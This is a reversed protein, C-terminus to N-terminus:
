IVDLKHLRPVADYVDDHTALKLREFGMEALRDSDFAASKEVLYYNNYEEREYNVNRLSVDDVFKEWRRNFRSFSTDLEHLAKRIKTNSDTAQLELRLTPQWEDHLSQLYEANSSDRLFAALLGWKKDILAAVQALRTRPMDLLEDREKRCRKLLQKWVDEVRQARLVYAPPGDQEALMKMFETRSGEYDEM